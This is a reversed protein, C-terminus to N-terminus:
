HGLDVSHSRKIYSKAKADYGDYDAKSSLNAASAKSKNM